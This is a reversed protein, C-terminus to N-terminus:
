DLLPVVREALLALHELDSMDLIQLYATEAGADRWQAIREAVQEPTGACGFALLDDVKWGAADARASLSADNEACVVTMASSHRLTSPDRGINECAADVLAFLEAAQAPQLFPTNFEDAFQAALRPTRKPGAGGVIVPPRPSQLPKPLGPSREIQYTEGHFEYLSGEPTTWLGTIIELQEELRNFREKLSPFPFGYAKHEDDYWGAGLGLEVRGESMQDVQAVSVALLGPSRFTASTVM